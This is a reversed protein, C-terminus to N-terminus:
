GTRARWASTWPKANVSPCRRAADRQEGGDRRRPRHQARHAARAQDALRAASPARPPRLRQVNSKMPWERQNKVSDPVIRSIPASAIPARPRFKPMSKLDPCASGPRARAGPSTVRPRLRRLRQVEVCARRDAAASTWFILLVSRRRCSRSGSGSWSAAAGFLDVPRGRELVTSCPEVLAEADDPRLVEGGRRDPRAEPLVTSFLATIAIM